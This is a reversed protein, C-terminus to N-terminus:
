PQASPKCLNYRQGKLNFASPEKSVDPDSQATVYRWIGTSPTGQMPWDIVKFLSILLNSSLFCYLLYHSNLDENKQVNSPPTRLKSVAHQGWIWLDFADRCFGLFECCSKLAEISTVRISNLLSVSPIHRETFIPFILFSPSFTCWCIDWQATLAIALDILM